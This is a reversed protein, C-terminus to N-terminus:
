KERDIIHKRMAAFIKDYVDEKETVPLEVQVNVTLSVATSAPVPAVPRPEAIPGPGVTPPVSVPGAEFDALTCLTKFTAVIVKRTDEGVKTTSAVVNILAENDQRHADDYVNYFEAYSQRLADALIAKAVAKNRYARFRPTPNGPPDIFGIFKLVRIFDRHATSKFGVKILWAQTVKDPEQVTQIKGMFDKLADRPYVYPFDTM